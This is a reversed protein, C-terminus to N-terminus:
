RMTQTANQAAIRQSSTFLRIKGNLAYWNFHSDDPAFVHLRKSLSAFLGFATVLIVYQNPHERSIKIAEGQIDQETMNKAGQIEIMNNGRGTKTDKILTKNQIINPTTSSQQEFSVGDINVVVQTEMVSCAGKIADLHAM